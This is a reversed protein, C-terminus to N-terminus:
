EDWDGYEEPPKGHSEVLRPKKMRPNPPAVKELKVEFRWCPGYDYNFEM